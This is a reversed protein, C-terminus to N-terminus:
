QIMIEDPQEADVRFTSRFAFKAQPVTSKTFAIDLSLDHDLFATCALDNRVGRSVLGDISEKIRQLKEIKSKVEELAKFYVELEGRLGIGDYISVGALEHM